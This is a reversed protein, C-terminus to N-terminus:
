SLSVIRSTQLIVRLQRYKEKDLADKFIVCSKKFSQSNLKFRLVCVYNTVTSDGCLQGIEDKANKITLRWDGNAQLKLGIITQQQWIYIGYSVSLFILFFKLLLIIPLYIVIVISSLMMLFFLLMFQKSNKLQIDIEPM